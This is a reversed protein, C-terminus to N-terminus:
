PATSSCRGELLEEPKPLELPPTDIKKLFWFKKGTKADDGDVALCGLTVAEALYKVTTKRTWDMAHDVDKKGFMHEGQREAWEVLKQCKITSGSLVRPLLTMALERAIAYDEVKAVLYLQGNRDTVERQHQHLLASSEVLALLRPRDRRVRLPKKPFRIKDAFPILVPMPALLRGTNQWRRVIRDRKDPPMPDIYRRNQAEFIRQAQEESEDPYVDFARTENESHLHTKTTTQFFVAPGEVVREQTELRGAEDKEPVLIRIAKESQFTRISYDADEGGPAEAIAVIKHKLSKAFYQLAKATMGSIEIVDEQPETELVSHMLYNKGVASEGKITINIPEDSLRGSAAALKLITKETQQGVSGLLETDAIFELLLRPSRLLALAEEREAEPVAVPSPSQDQSFRTRLFAVQERLIVIRVETREAIEKIMREAEIASQVQAVLKLVHEIHLSDTESSLEDILANVDPKTEIPERPLAQLQKVSHACLYDDLGTKRKHVM